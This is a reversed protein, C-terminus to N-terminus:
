NSFQDLDRSLITCLFASNQGTFTAGSRLSPAVKISLISCNQSCYQGSIHVVNPEYTFM